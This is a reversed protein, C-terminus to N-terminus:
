HNQILSRLEKRESESIKEAKAKAPAAPRPATRSSNTIQSAWERAQNVPTSIEAHSLQTKIQDSVTKNGIRIWNGLVLVLGAFLSIKIVSGILKLM